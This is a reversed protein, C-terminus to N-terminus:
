IARASPIYELSGSNKLVLAGVASGELCEIEINESNFAMEEYM